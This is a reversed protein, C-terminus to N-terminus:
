GSAYATGQQAGSSSLALPVPTKDSGGQWPHLLPLAIGAMLMIGVLADLSTACSSDCTAAALAARASHLWIAAPHVGEGDLPVPPRTTETEAPCIWWTRTGREVRWRM